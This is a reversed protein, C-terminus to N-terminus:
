VIRLDTCVARSLSDLYVGALVSLAQWIGSMREVWVREYEVGSGAPEGVVSRKGSGGLCLIRGLVRETSCFNLEVPASEEAM